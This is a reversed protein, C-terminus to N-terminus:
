GDASGTWRASGARQPLPHPEVRAAGSRVEEDIGKKVENSLNKSYFEAISSMIGHLLLGGPPQDINESTSVLRIARLSNPAVRHLSPDSGPRHRVKFIANLPSM